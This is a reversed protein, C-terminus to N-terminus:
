AVHMDTNYKKSGYLNLYSDIMKGTEFRMINNFGLQILKTRTSITKLSLLAAAFDEPKNPDVHLAAGGSVEPMPEINSAIVPAGCAQAEIVPWGFGESFSPFIFAECSSYLAVLTAHNPKEICFVRNNLKFSTIHDLLEKDVADGAYCVNGKWTQGLVVIMELLLKRNKRPLGSGVHLIFPAGSKYGTKNVLSKAEQQEMPKFEANFGNYIVRWREQQNKNERIINKLQLLTQQSVCALRNVNNINGLIWKQLLKGAFSATCYTDEDGLAGRIALVDHCTIASREQPLHQLYPANSHDCIHFFVSKDDLQKNRLRWKIQLPFLLWKDIYGCWKGIGYTTSKVVRGIIAKPRWVSVDHGQNRFGMELMYTFRDM